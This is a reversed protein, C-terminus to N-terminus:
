QVVVTPSTTTDVQNVFGSLTNVITDDVPTVTLAAIAGLVGLIAIILKKYKKIFEM